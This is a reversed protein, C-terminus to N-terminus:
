RSPHSDSFPEVLREAFASGIYFALPLAKPIVLAALARWRGLDKRGM